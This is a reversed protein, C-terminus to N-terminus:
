AGGPATRTPRATRRRGGRASRRRAAWRATAPGPAPGAPGRRGGDGVAGLHGGLQPREAQPHVLDVRGLLEAVADALGLALLDGVDEHDAVVVDRLRVTPTFGRPPSTSRPTGSSAKAWRTASSTSSCVWTRHGGFRHRDLGLRRDDISRRRSPAAAAAPPPGDGPRARRHAPHRVAYMSRMVVSSASTRGSSSPRDSNSRM